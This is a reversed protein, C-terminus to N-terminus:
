RASFALWVGLAGIATSLLTAFTERSLLRLVWEGALTGAVVGVTAVGVLRWAGDFAHPATWAYVPARVLDVILGTATATAVLAAPSLDFATLAAARLGGQNGAVGGFFGSTVGLASVMLGRPHWRSALGVLQAIATLILLGGLAQTLVVPSIRAHVIAGLLGGAASVTGFRRLVSWDISARLRWCRLATAIFHPVTVAVVASPMGLAVALLATLISGIGFGVVSAAAGSLLAAAFVLLEFM